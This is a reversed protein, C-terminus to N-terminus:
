VEFMPVEAAACYVLVPLIKFHPFILFFRAVKPDGPVVIVVISYQLYPLFGLVLVKIFSSFHSFDMTTYIRPSNPGLFILSGPRINLSPNSLLCIIQKM